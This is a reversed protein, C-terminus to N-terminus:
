LVPGARWMISHLHSTTHKFSIETSNSVTCPFNNVCRKLEKCKVDAPHGFEFQPQHVSHKVREGWTMRKRGVGWEKEELAVIKGVPFVSLGWVPLTVSAPSIVYLFLNILSKDWLRTKAGSNEWYPCPFRKQHGGEWWCETSHCPFPPPFSCWGIGCHWKWSSFWFQHQQTM